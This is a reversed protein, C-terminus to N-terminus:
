RICKNPPTAKRPLGTNKNLNLARSEEISVPMNKYFIAWDSKNQILDESKIEFPKFEMQREEAESIKDQLFINFSEKLKKFM